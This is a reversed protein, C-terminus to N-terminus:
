DSVTAARYILLVLLVQVIIVTAPPQDALASISYELMARGQGQPGAAMFGVNVDSQSALSGTWQLVVLTIIASLSVIPYQQHVAQRETMWMQTQIRPGRQLVVQDGACV